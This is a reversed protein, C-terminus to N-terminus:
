GRSRCPPRRLQLRALLLDDRQISSAPSVASIVAVRRSSSRWVNLLSGPKRSSSSASSPAGPSSASSCIGSSRRRAARPARGPCRGSGGRGTRRPRAARGDAREALGGLHARPRELLAAFLDGLQARRARLVRRCRWAAAGTGRTARRGGGRSRCRGARRPRRRRRGAVGDLRPLALVAAEGAELREPVVEEPLAQREVAEVVDAVDQADAASVPAGVHQESRSGCAASRGRASGFNSSHLWHSPGLWGPTVVGSKVRRAGCPRRARARRGALRALFTPSRRLRRGARRRGAARGSAVDGLRLDRQRGCSCSSISPRGLVARASRCAFVSLDVLQELTLAGRGSGPAGALM